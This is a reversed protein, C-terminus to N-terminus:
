LTSSKKKSNISEIIKESHELKMKYPLKNMELKSFERNLPKSLREIYVELSIVLQIFISNILFEVNKDDLKCLEYLHDIDRFYENEDYNSSFIM